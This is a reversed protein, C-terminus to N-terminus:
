LKAEPHAAKLRLYDALAARLEPAPPAPNELVAIFQAPDRESLTLTEQFSVPLDTLAESNIM